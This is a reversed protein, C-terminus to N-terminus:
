PDRPIRDFSPLGGIEDAACRLAYLYAEFLTEGAYDCECAPPVCELLLDGVSFARPLKSSRLRLAVVRFAARAKQSSHAVRNRIISADEFARKRSTMAERFPRGAVFFLSARNLTDEVSWSLYHRLPDFNSRGSVIGYADKLTSAPGFKLLPRRRAMSQAGCLYRVFTGEIFEEWSAVVALFALAVIRRAQSPHVPNTTISDFDRRVFPEMSEYLSIASGIAVEFTNRINRISVPQGM